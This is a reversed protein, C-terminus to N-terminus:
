YVRRMNSSLIGLEDRYKAITRRAIKVNREGLLKTLQEDSLPSAKPENAVLESIMQKVSANSMDEGSSTKIGGTFFYRMEFLGQPTQIYKGSVARSVTTEHVGVAEAIESMTMPKLHSVGEDMFERQRRVIQRAIKLITDQRQHISKLLFKGDRIKARIYERVDKSNRAQALLDKYSNSIRIQPLDARNSVVVYEGDKWEVNAEPLVFHDDNPLFASGPRPDLGAINEAADQIEDIEVGLSRAIEPFRRRGLADMHKDVVRYELSSIRGGRELQLLLCERLDLAGVGPPDFSRIVSLVEEILDRNHGTSQALEEVGAQLYGHDDLNGIILEAVTQEAPDLDSLHAQELLHDRLSASATLSDFMFRRREEDDPTARNLTQTQGGNFHERWEESLEALREVEAHFDDVHEGPSEASPDVTTVTAADAESAKASPSEDGSDSVEATGSEDSAMEELVPNEQLEKNILARLDLLPAQLIALSQQMQPSMIQVQAQRQGLQLRPEMAMNPAGIIGHRGRCPLRM